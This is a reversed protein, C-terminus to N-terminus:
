QRISQNFEDVTFVEGLGDAPHKRDWQEYEESLQEAYWMAIKGIEKQDLFVGTPDSLRKQGRVVLVRWGSQVLSEVLGRRSWVRGRHRIDSNLVADIQGQQLAANAM